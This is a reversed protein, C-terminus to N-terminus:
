AEKGSADFVVAAVPVPHTPLMTKWRIVVNVHVVPVDNRSVLLAKIGNSLRFEEVAM